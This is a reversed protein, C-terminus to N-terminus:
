RRRSRMRKKRPDRSTHFVSLVVIADHLTAYIIVFPFGKVPAQRIAGKIRQYGHPAFLISSVTDDIATLFRVALGDQKLDYWLAASELEHEAEPEIVLTRSM